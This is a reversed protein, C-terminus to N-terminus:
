REILRAGVPLQELGLGQARDLVTSEAGWHLVGTEITQIQRHLDERQVQLQAIQYETAALQVTQALYTLGLLFAVLIVALLAGVPHVRRGARDPRSVRRRTTTGPRAGVPWPRAAYTASM